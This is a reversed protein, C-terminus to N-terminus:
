RFFPALLHRCSLFGDMFTQVAKKDSHAFAIYGASQFLGASPVSSDRDRHWYVGGRKEVRQPTKYWPGYGNAWFAWLVRGDDKENMQAEM